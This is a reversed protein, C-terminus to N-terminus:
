SRSPGKCLTGSGKGAARRLWQDLATQIEGAAAFVEPPCDGDCLGAYENADVHEHLEAFSEVSPPLLGALVDDLIEWQGRKVASTINSM